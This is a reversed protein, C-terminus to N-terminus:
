ATQQPKRINPIYQYEEVIKQIKEATAPSVEDMKGHIANSVTAISVGAIEATEKLTIM